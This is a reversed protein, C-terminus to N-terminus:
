HTGSVPTSSTEEGKEKHFFGGKEKHEKKKKKSAAAEQVLDEFVRVEEEEEPSRVIRRFVDGVIMLGRARDIRTTAPVSKDSLVRDCVERLVSQIEFRSGNWAAALIKGMAHRELEAKEIDTLEDGKEELKAIDQLTYQADIASSITNWTDKVVTYKEKFKGFVGGMGLMKQSKLFNSGKTYYTHGIAHLLELGFSEMKLEAALDAQQKRFFETVAPKKDSETYVSLREVLKEVLKDVREQHATDREDHLKKIEQKQKESLIGKKKKDKNKSKADTASSAISDVDSQPPPSSSSSQHPLGSPSSHSASSEALPTTTTSSPTPTPTADITSGDTIALQGTKTALDDTSSTTATAAPKFEEDEEEEETAIQMSRTIDRILSIEGILDFFAEGGFISSILESPDEFGAEPVAQDKGFQNYRKRLDKDSLVQYAESIEQFKEDANPDDLNKDPHYKIAMKRYGKKIELETADPAVGLLEYYTTDVVTAAM